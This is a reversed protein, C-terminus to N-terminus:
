RSRASAVIESLTDAPGRNPVSGAATHGGLTCQFSVFDSAPWTVPLGSELGRWVCLDSATVFRTGLAFASRRIERTVRDAGSQCTIRFYPVTLPSLVWLDELEYTQGLKISLVYWGAFGRADFIVSDPFHRALPAEERAELWIPVSWRLRHEDSASEVSLSIPVRLAHLRQCYRALSAMDAHLSYPTFVGLKELPMPSNHLLLPSEIGQPSVICNVSVGFAWARLVDCGTKGSRTSYWWDVEGFEGWSHDWDALYSQPKRALMVARDRAADIGVAGPFASKHAGFSAEMADIVDAPYPRNSRRTESWIEVAGKPRLPSAWQHIVDVLLPSLRSRFACDTDVTQGISERPNLPLLSSALWSVLAVLSGVALLIRM